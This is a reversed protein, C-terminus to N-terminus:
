KIEVLTVGDGGLKPDPHSIEMEVRYEKLKKRVAKRLIGDGKGHIIEIQSSSNMLASDMYSEVVQLAEQMRMGRIDLKNEFAAIKQITDFHLSKLKKDLPEPGKELDRVDIILTLDGMLVNAKEKNIGTLLGVAGGSRLRVYDGINLINSTGEASSGYYLEEKLDEVELVKKAREERLRIALERAKEINKEEKIEKILREVEKNVLGTDQLEQQKQELKFRKRRFEYDKQMSEYGRVLKVLLDQKEKLAVLSEKVTQKEKQLDVLLEDVEKESKRTRSQAYTIVNDPLGSKLASEFAYSSGPKGEIFHYTPTLNDMDYAMCGNIIGETNYAFIKLNSYHTTIVGVVEKTNLERLISEAIAGGFQPDTGSGFEDILLLSKRGSKRIFSNMNILRSSYTSLDDEISQQDGIDAFFESFIGFESLPDAPVPLGSQVMLQLLGLSKMTISKGGANPGSLVLIRNKEGLTLSFPVTPKGLVINKLFLLPHRGKYIKIMPLDKVIPKTAKLKLSVRSKAQILDFQILVDQFVKFGPAYPRLFASLAKLIRYIEKREEQELDFVDNNIDIVGEPEIFTTRGTASEDHIIGRIKRKHESPVSLVRRGNRYGELNDTLWGKGRYDQIIQRFVKDLEKMKFQMSRRIRGLEPSADPRINGDSDLVKDIEKAIAFDFHLSKIINYLNPYILTRETTFYRYVMSVSYLQKSIRKFGEEPLVYDEIALMKLDDRIDEYNSLNITDAHQIGRMFESVENLRNEILALHLEPAILHAQEIGLNGLCNNAILEIIKDFELRVLFDSPEYTM